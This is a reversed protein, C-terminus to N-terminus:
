EKAASRGSGNGGKGGGRRRGGRRRRRRGTSGRDDESEGGGGGGGGGKPRRAALKQWHALAGGEDYQAQVTFGLFLLADHFYQRNVLSRGRGPTLMRRYAMCVQRALERDKRAVGLAAGPPTMLADIKRDLEARPADVLADGLLPAFLLAQLVGNSPIHGTDRVYDDLRRLYEWLLRSPVTEPDESTECEEARLIGKPGFLGVYEPWMHGLLQSGVMMDMARASAGSRLLKYLEELLRARSCKAVDPATELLADRTDNEIEFDLRAAFKVARIMRVPDEQFRVAPEGITRIMRADLDSLGDVFDLIDGAQVDFFLANITFDRRRADDEISGYENDRTILPDDEDASPPARFTATEIIKPGFFVHALKFRRGIIRSNRFVKKVEEPRASTAVDFDKPKIGLCADRV